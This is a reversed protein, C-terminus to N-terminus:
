MAIPRADPSVDRGAAASFVAQGNMWIEGSDATELGALCRLTTTKGCGSPGLLTFFSNQPVSSSVDDIVRTVEGSHPRTFHKQLGSIQVSHDSGVLTKM